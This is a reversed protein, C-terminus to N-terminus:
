YKVNSLLMSSFMYQLNKVIDRSALIKLKEAHDIDKSEKIKNFHKEFDNTQFTCIKESINPLHFM